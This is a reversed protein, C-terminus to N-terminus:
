QKYGIKQADDTVPGDWEEQTKCITKGMRSETTDIHKCIKKEKKPKQPQPQASSNDSAAYAPVALAAAVLVFLVKRM